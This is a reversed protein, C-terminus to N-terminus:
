AVDEFLRRCETLTKRDLLWSILLVAIVIVGAGLPVTWALPGSSSYDDGLGSVLAGNLCQLGVFCLLPLAYLVGPAQIRRLRVVAYSQGHLLLLALALGVLAASAEWWLILRMTHHWVITIDIAWLLIVTQIILLTRGIWLWSNARLCARLGRALEQKELALQLEEPPMQALSVLTTLAVGCVTACITSAAPVWFLFVLWPPFSPTLGSGFAANVSALHVALYTASFAVLALFTSSLALVVLWRWERLCERARVASWERLTDSGISTGGRQQIDSLATDDPM